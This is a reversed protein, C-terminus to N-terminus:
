EATERLKALLGERNTVGKIDIGRATALEKLEPVKLGDLDDAAEAPADADAPKAADGDGDSAADAAKAAALEEASPSIQATEGDAVKRAKQETAASRRSMKTFPEDGNLYAKTTKELRKLEEATVQDGPKAAMFAIGDGNFDYLRSKVEVLKSDSM